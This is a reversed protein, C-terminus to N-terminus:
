RKKEGYAIIPWAPLRGSIVTCIFIPWRMWMWECKNVNQRRITNLIEFTVLSINLLSSWVKWYEKKNELLIQLTWLWWSDVYYIYIYIYIYIYKKISKFMKLYYFIDILTKIIQDSSSFCWWLFFSYKSWHRVESHVSILNLISKLGRLYRVTKSYLLKQLMYYM